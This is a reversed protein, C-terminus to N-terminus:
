LVEHTICTTQSCWSLTTLCRSLAVGHVTGMPEEQLGIGMTIMDELSLITLITWGM